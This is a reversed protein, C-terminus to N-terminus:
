NFMFATLVFDLALIALSSVVVTSTTARSVGEANPAATYGQYVAIWSVAFGFVLSKILSDRIDVFEVSGRIASWYSGADVGLLEVGVAHGGAVGIAMVAFIMSLLPMAILGAIFRPAIVRQIPDVAMMEMASLQDTARMLGLEAALSSGARGAFLLATVVPGLERIIVLAVFVGLSESAGFRVLTRYGQLALVMGIFVGSIVIIIMSLVGLMYLQRSILRPQLLAAPTVRLIQLLFFVSQGLGSLFNGLVQLLGSM